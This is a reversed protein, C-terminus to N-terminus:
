SPGDCCAKGLVGVLAHMPGQDHARFRRGHVDRGRKNRCWQLTAVGSQFHATVWGM